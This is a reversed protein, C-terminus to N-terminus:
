PHRVLLPLREYEAIRLAREVGQRQLSEHLMAHGLLHRGLQLLAHTRPVYGAEADLYAATVRAQLEQALPIQM